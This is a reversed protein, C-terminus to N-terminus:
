LKKLLATLGNDFVEQIVATVDYDGGPSTFAATWDVRSSTGDGIGQVRLTACYDAIEVPADTITYSYNRAMEDYSLLREVFVGGDDAHVRRVRGGDELEARSFGPLWDAISGFPGNIAWVSDPDTAIEVSAAVFAMTPDKSGNVIGLLPL